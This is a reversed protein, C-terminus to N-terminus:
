FDERLKVKRNAQLFERYILFRKLYEAPLVAVVWAGMLVLGTARMPTLGGNSNWPAILVLFVGLMAFLVLNGLRTQELRMRAAVVRFFIGLWRDEGMKASALLSMGNADKPWRRLISLANDRAEDFRGERLAAMGMLYLSSRDEPDLALAQRAAREAAGYDGRQVHSGAVASWTAADEPDLAVAAKLTDLTKRVGWQSGGSELRAKLRHYPAWDPAAALLFDVHPRAAKRAAEIARTQSWLSPGSIFPIRIYFQGPRRTQDWLTSRSIQGRRLYAQALRLHARQNEPDLALAARGHEIALALEGKTLYAQALWARADANEPEIALLDRLAAIAPDVQNLELLQRARALGYDGEM